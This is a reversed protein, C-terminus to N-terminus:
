PSLTLKVTFPVRYQVSIGRRGSINIARNIRITVGQAAGIDNLTAQHEIGVVTVTKIGARVEIIQSRTIAAVYSEGIRCGIVVARRTRFLDHGNGDCTGIVGRDSNGIGNARALVGNQVTGYRRGGVDVTCGSRVSVSETGRVQGFTAKHKVIVTAVAKIGARVEIIERSAITAIDGKDIGGGIVQDHVLLAAVVLIFLTMHYGGYGPAAMILM